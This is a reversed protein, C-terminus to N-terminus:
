TVDVTSRIRLRMTHSLKGVMLLKLIEALVISRSSGTADVDKLGARPPHASVPSLRVVDSGLKDAARALLVLSM